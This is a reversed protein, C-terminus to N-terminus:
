NGKKISDKGEYIRVESGTDMCKEKEEVMGSSKLGKREKGQSKIKTRLTKLIWKKFEPKEKHKEKENKHGEEMNILDQIIAPEM